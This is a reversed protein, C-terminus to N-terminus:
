STADSSDFSLWAAPKRESGASAARGPDDGRGASGQQGPSADADVLDLCQEPRAAHALHIASAVRLEPAVDRELHQRTGEGRIGIAQGAELAFRPDERREIVRVDARDVPDFLAVADARQNQFQDVALREGITQRFARQREILRQCIAIWIALASSVACRAPM